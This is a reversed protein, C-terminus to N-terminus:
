RGALVEDYVRELKAASREWSFARARERGAAAM